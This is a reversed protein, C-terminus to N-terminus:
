ESIKCAADGIVTHEPVVGDKFPVQLAVTSKDGPYDTYHGVGLTDTAIILPNVGERMWLGDSSPDGPLGVHVVGSLLVFFMNHPPHHLREQSRPPLTVYTVNTVDGLSLAEGVTPYKSFPANLEWCEIKANYPDHDENVVASIQLRKTSDLPPVQFSTQKASVIYALIIALTLVMSSVM